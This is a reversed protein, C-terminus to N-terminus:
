SEQKTRKQREGANIDVYTNCTVGAALLGGAGAGGLAFLEGCGM